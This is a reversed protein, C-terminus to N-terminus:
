PLREGAYILKGEPLWLGDLERVVVHHRELILRAQEYSLKPAAVFDLPDVHRDQFSPGFVVDSPLWAKGV